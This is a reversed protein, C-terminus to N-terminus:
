KAAISAKLPEVWHKHDANYYLYARSAPGSYEGPVRCTLDVPVEIKQGPGMDRWYLVLEREGRKEFASVLPRGGGEPLRVHDKLQKFDEPITLGAPIGVIAVVMGQGKDSANEVKVTLRVGDGEVLETKALSTALKVPCDEASAPKLTNYSWSLTYPFVNKGTIEVRVKNEGPKLNEEVEDMNITLAESAGALFKLHGVKKDGVFMTLEGAEPTKKNAKTFAILAKLALITSQTSGFGGYGGRQQGVWKVAKLVNGNFDRPNNAKLWGLVALATTEIQLDRGGSGTISTQAADLHGDDKQAAAVRKLLENAEDNRSRNILSNAVLALFYPDKSDKAQKSLADLETTVDDDPSGETLAWVIYADTINQPARGFTDLARANRKFSGKGDRQDMLYKRTRELMQQDVESVRAMDRFQLLGYATLAEHAPATGGFWEYGEKKQKGTNTCEFSTLKQYGRGLLERARKEVEPNAQDSEKMYNLILVNPYNTTSTQEFCGNPERLLGELGKQLDALTSPYVDVKCKLSGNVWTEPLRVTVGSTGELVDSHAGTFPFGEPVVRFQKRVSDSGFGDTKGEFTLVADGDRITPQFRYLRREPDGSAVDFEDSVKGRTLELGDKGKLNVTVKRKEGTNNTVGLPIDIKDSATVELPIKPQLTFPLRSDLNYTAAGVRGDLSHAFATVQFTTTSDCLEFSVDAQGNPLVLVPHWYLTEAFDSRLEPNMGATHHHAYERVIMPPLPQQFAQDAPPVKGGGPGGGPLGGPRGPHPGRGGGPMPQAGGKIDPMKGDAKKAEGMVQAKEHMRRAAPDADARKAKNDDGKALLDHPPVAGPKMNPVDPAMPPLAGQGRAPGGFAGDFKERELGGKDRDKGMDRDAMNNAALKLPADAATETERSAAAQREDAYRRTQTFAWFGFCFLMLAASGAATVYFPVAKGGERALGFAFGLVAAAMLLVGLLPLGIVSVREWLKEYDALKTQAALYPAAAAASKEEEQAAATEDNLAAFKAQYETNIEAVKKETFDTVRPGSQGITVLLREAEDKHKERFKDPNQEAFRRWGQTGLLLDLAQKAKAQPGLLFDAYELDEPRRVETTLLFHTPMSRYTKEDAMTVVSKDVVAIMIISPTSEENENIAKLSLNVKQGPVYSDKDPRIALNLQEKPQKYVLREAVPKLERRNAGTDIEEFVTIRCVGGQDGSTKLTAETKGKELKVSDLLRGRCYAGILLTRETKTRVAVKLTGDSAVVGETQMVVGDEKADPLVHKSTVGSPTDIRLEYKANAKPTFTFVGMGQNVGPEKDDTLTAVEVDTPKGDELLQGKLDAPKGLTTRVTFYVRSKLGAVLDGGEPFFEVNLKKLVIPIPKSLPEVNASNDFSAGDTFTLTLNAEGKEIEAPLKFRVTTKGGKNETGDADLKFTFKKNSEKGDAGYQKGDITVMAEVPKGALPTGNNSTVKVAAQVEEGAGYTKKNYDLEKNLTHKEYINVIFKRQQAPFRNNEDSVTLIYEGPNVTKPDLYYAGAGVGKIPKGDPGKIESLAGGTEQKRLANGAHLIPQPGGNPPTLSYILRLDEEAPKLSARDLTLSRFYVTEGPQYMPKDTTLHTLYVKSALDLQEQLETKTGIERKASVLLIPHSNPKLPLDPPLTVKYTGEAVRKAELPAGIKAGNDSVQVSVNAAVAQGNLNRTEIQYETPAGPQVASPGQVVVKMQREAEAKYVGAVKAANEQHTADIRKQVDRQKQQADSVTHEGARIADRTREVDANVLAGTIGLGAVTLLVAAAVAWRVWKVSKRAAMPKELTAFPLTAPAATTIAEAPAAAPPQFAVSPFEMKAAAAFLQQQSRAQALAGQCAACAVLHAELAARDADDVLGYVYELLRAQCTECSHM